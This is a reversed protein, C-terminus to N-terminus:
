GSHNCVTAATVPESATFVRIEAMPYYEPLEGSTLLGEYRLRPKEEPDPSVPLQLSAEQM